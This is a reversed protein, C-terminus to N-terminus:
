GLILVGGTQSTCVRGDSAPLSAKDVPVQDALVFDQNFLETVTHTCQGRNNSSLIFNRPTGTTPLFKLM